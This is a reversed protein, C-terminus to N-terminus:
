PQTGQGVDAHLGENVHTVQQGQRDSGGLAGAAHSFSERVVAASRATTPSPPITFPSTVARGVRAEVKGEATSRRSRTRATSSPASCSAIAKARWALSSASGHFAQRGTAAHTVRERRFPVVFVDGGTSGEDSMLGGIFAISKGDRRGARSRWRRPRRSSPREAGTRRTSSSSSRSTGTRPRGPPPAAIVAFQAGDPSWAYEYVYLDARTLPRVQGSAADVLALRQVPVHADAEGECPRWPKSPVSTRRTRPSSSRSRRATQRSTRLRRARWDPRHAEAAVIRTTRCPSTSSPETRERARGVLVGADKRRAVLRRRRERRRPLARRLRGLGQRLPRKRDLARLVSTSTDAGRTVFSEVWALKSGDASLTVESFSSSQM